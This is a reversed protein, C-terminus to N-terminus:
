RRCKWRARCPSSMTPRGAEELAAKAGELLADALDDYFRAEVILVHAKDPKLFANAAHEAM